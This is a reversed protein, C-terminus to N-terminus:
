CLRKGDMKGVEDILLILKRANWCIKVKRSKWGSLKKRDGDEEDCVVRSFSCCHVMLMETESQMEAEGVM